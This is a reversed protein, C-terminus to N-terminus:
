SMVYNQDNLWHDIQYVLLLELVHAGAILSLLSSKGVGDPGILGVMCRPPIAISVDNLACTKKYHLTVNSVNVVADDIAKGDALLTLDKKGSESM